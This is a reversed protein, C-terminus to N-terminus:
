RRFDRIVFKKAGFKDEYDTFHTFTKYRNIGGIRGHKKCIDQWKKVMADDAIIKLDVARADLHASNTSGDCNLNELKSRKWSNVTLPKNYWNRLEQIMQAFEVIPPLIEDLSHINMEQFSFNKVLRSM